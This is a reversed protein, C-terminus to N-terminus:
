YVQGLDSPYKTLYNQILSVPYDPGTIVIAATGSTWVVNNNNFVYVKYAKGGTNVTTTSTSYAAGVADKLGSSTKYIGVQVLYEKMNTQVVISTNANNTGTIYKVIYYIGLNNQLTLGPMSSAVFIYAPKYSFEGIDSPSICDKACEGTSHDSYECIDNGCGFKTLTSVLSGGYLDELEVLAAPGTRDIVFNYSSSKGTNGLNDTVQVYFKNKGEPAKAKYFFESITERPSTFTSTIDLPNNNLIIEAHNLTVAAASNTSSTGAFKAVGSFQTAEEGSIYEQGPNLPLPSRIEVMPALHNITFRIIMGEGLRGLNDKPVVKFVYDGDILQPFTVTMIDTTGPSGTKQLNSIIEGSGGGQGANSEKRLEIITGDISVPSGRNGFTIVMKPLASFIGSNPDIYKVYPGETKYTTERTIQNSNAAKDTAQLVISNTGNKIAMETYFSGSTGTRTEFYTEGNNYIIISTNEETTGNIIIIPNVSILEITNQLTITPPTSDLSFELQKTGAPLKGDPDTCSLEYYYPKNEILPLTRSSKFIYQGTKMMSETSYAKIMTNIESSSIERYKCDANKYTVARMFANTDKIYGKPSEEFIQIPGSVDVSVRVIRYSQALNGARDECLVYYGNDSPDELELTETQPELLYSSTGNTSLTTGGPISTDFGQFKSEMIEYNITTKSYKCRVEESAKVGLRTLNSSMLYYHKTTLTQNYLIAATNKVYADQITPPLNDYVVRARDPKGINGAEDECSIDLQTEGGIIGSVIDIGPDLMVSFLIKEPNDTAASSVLNFNLSKEIKGTSQYTVNCRGIKDSSITITPKQQNTFEHGLYIIKPAWTNKILLNETRITPNGLQDKVTIKITYNGPVLVCNRLNICGRSQSLNYLLLNEIGAGQKMDQQTFTLTTNFIQAGNQDSVEITGENPPGISATEEDTARVVFLISSGHELYPKGYATYQKQLDGDEYMRLDLRPGIEDKIVRITKQDSNGALDYITASVINEGPNLGVQAAYKYASIDSSYNYSAITQQRNNQAVDSTTITINRIYDETASGEVQLLYQNTPYRDRPVRIQITPPNTDIIIMGCKKQEQNGSPTAKDQSSHCLKSSEQIFTSSGATNPTCDEASASVVCYRMSDPNCGFSYEESTAGELLPDSCKFQLTLKNNYYFKWKDDGFTETKDSLTVFPTTNSPIQDVGFRIHEVDVIDSFRDKCEIYHTFYYKNPAVVVNKLEHYFGQTNPALNGILINGAGNYLKCDAPNSTKIAFNINQDKVVKAPSVREILHLVDIRIEKTKNIQNGAKDTCHIEYRYFGDQLAEYNVTFQTNTISNLRTGKDQEEGTLSDLYLLKDKCTVPENATTTITLKSLPMRSNSTDTVATTPVIEITPPNLDVLLLLSEQKARNMSRDIAYYNIYYTGEKGLEGLLYNALNITVIRTNQDNLPITIDPCCVEKKSICFAFTRLEKSSTFELNMNDKNIPANNNPPTITPILLDKKCLKLAAPANQETYGLDEICDDKNNGNGDKVCKTGTWRCVGLRCADNSTIETKTSIADAGTGSVICTFQMTTHNFENDGEPGECAAQTNYDDCMTPTGGKEGAGIVTLTGNIYASYKCENCSGDKAFCSGLRSCINQTCDYNYFANNNKNCLQCNGTANYDLDYCIGKGFVSFTAPYWKCKQNSIQLAGETIKTQQYKISSTCMDKECANQSKYDYCGMDVNCSQCTDVLKQSYDYYCYNESNVGYCTTEQYFLGLPYAQQNLWGCAGLKKCATKSGETKVCMYRIGQDLDNLVACDIPLNPTYSPLVVNNQDDCAARLTPLVTSSSTTSTCFEGNNNECRIDGLKITTVQPISDGHSYVAIVYYAYTKGWEVNYDNFETSSIYALVPSQSDSPIQGGTITGIEAKKIKYGAANPCSTKWKLQVAKVGKIPKALLEKVPQPANPFRCELKLSELSFDQVSAQNLYITVLTEPSSNYGASTAQITYAIGRTSAPLKIEYKGTSDTYTTTSYSLGTATIKAGTIPITSGKIYINGRVSGWDYVCPQDMLTLAGEVDCCNKNSNTAVAVVQGCRCEPGPNASIIKNKECQPVAGCQLYCGFQMPNRLDCNTAPNLASGSQMLFGSPCQSQLECCSAAESVGKGVPCCKLASSGCDKIIMSNDTCGYAYCTGGNQTCENQMRAKCSVQDTFIERATGYCYMKKPTAATQLTTKVSTLASSGCLCVETNETECKQSDCLPEGCKGASCKWSSKWSPDNSTCQKQYCNIDACDIQMDGDNDIGDTCNEAAGATFKYNCCTLKLGQSLDYDLISGLAKGNCIDIMKQEAYVCGSIGSCEKHCLNDNLYTCDQECSNGNQICQNNTQKTYGQNCACNVDVILNNTTISGATTASCRYGQWDITTSCNGLLTGDSCSVKKTMDFNQTLTQGGNLTIDFKKTEYAAHIATLSYTGEYVNLLYSGTVDTKASTTEVSIIVNELAQNTAADKAIGNIKAASLPKLQFDVTKINDTAILTTSTSQSLYGFLGASITYTGLPLNPFEYKGDGGTTTQLSTAGSGATISVNEIAANNNKNSVIGKIAGRESYELIINLTKTQGPTLNLNQTKTKYGQMSTTITVEGSPITISYTGDTNSFTTKGGATITARSVAQDTTSTIKGSVTATGIPVSACQDTCTNQDTITFISNLSSPYLATAFTDCWAM